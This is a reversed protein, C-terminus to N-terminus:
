LEMMGLINEGLERQRASIHGARASTALLMQLEEATHSTEGLADPGIGAIKLMWNSISNVALVFPNFM